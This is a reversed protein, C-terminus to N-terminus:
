KSPGCECIRITSARHATAAVIRARQLAEKVAGVTGRKLALDDTFYDTPDGGIKRVLEPSDSSRGVRLFRTAPDHDLLAILMKDVATNTFAGLLV